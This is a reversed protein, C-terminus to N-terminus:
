WNLRASNPSAEIAAIKEGLMVNRITQRNIM